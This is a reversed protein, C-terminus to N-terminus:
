INQAAMARRDVRVRSLTKARLRQTLACMAAARAGLWAEQTEMCTMLIYRTLQAQSKPPGRAIPFHGLEGIIVGLLTEFM